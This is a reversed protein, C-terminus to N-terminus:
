VLAASYSIAVNTGDYCWYNIWYKGAASLTAACNSDADVEGGLTIAYASANNLLICGRAGVIENSFDLVDAGTPTWTFDNGAAGTLDFQGDNDSVVGAKQMKTWTQSVALAGLGLYADALTGVTVWASNAANRIKLLGTTTDAWLQYAFTTSPATTGSSCSALAKLALNADARFNAGTDNALDMDHQSM